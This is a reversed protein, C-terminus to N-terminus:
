AQAQGYAFLIALGSVMATTRIYKEPKAIIKKAQRVVAKYGPAGSGVYILGFAVLAPVNLNDVPGLNIFGLDGKRIKSYDIFNYKDDLHPTPLFPHKTPTPVGPGADLDPPFFQPVINGLRNPTSSFAKGLSPNYPPMSGNSKAGMRRRMMVSQNQSSTNNM